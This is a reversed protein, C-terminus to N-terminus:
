SPRFTLYLQNRPNLVPVFHVRIHLVQHSEEVYQRANMRVSQSQNESLTVARSILQDQNFFDFVNQLEETVEGKVSAKVAETAKNVTTIAAEAQATAIETNIATVNVEGKLVSVQATSVPNTLKAAQKAPSLMQSIEKGM